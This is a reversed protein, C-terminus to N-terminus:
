IFKANKFFKETEDDDRVAAGRTEPIPDPAKTAKAKTSIAKAKIKTAIAVAAKHTPMTLLEFADDPNKALYMTIQPGAEDELLMLQLDKSLGANVLATGAQEIQEISFGSDLTRKAFSQVLKQQEIQEQQAKQENASAGLTHKAEQAAIKRSYTLMDAHYKRMSDVDFIDDPLEPPQIDSAPESQKAQELQALKAALEDARRKEAYREATLKDLREQLKNGGKPRDETNTETEPESEANIESSTQESEEDTQLDVETQTVEEDEFSTIVDNLEENM